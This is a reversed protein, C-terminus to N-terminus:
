KKKLCYNFNMNHKGLPCLENEKIKWKTSLEYKYNKFNLLYFEDKKIWTGQIMIQTSNPLTSQETFEFKGTPILKIEEFNSWDAYVGYTLTDLSKYYNLGENANGLIVTETKKFSDYNSPIEKSDNDILKTMRGNKFFCEHQVTRTKEPDFWGSTIGEKKAVEKTFTPPANFYYRKAIMYVLQNDKFYFHERNMEISADGCGMELKHLGTKDYYILAECAYQQLSDPLYSIQYESSDVKKNIM